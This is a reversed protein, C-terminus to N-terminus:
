SSLAALLGGKLTLYVYEGENFDSLDLEGIASFLLGGISALMTLRGGERRIKYIMGRVVIRQEASPEPRTKSMVLEGQEGIRYSALNRPLELKFSCSGDPTKLSLVDIDYDSLPEIGDLVVKWKMM